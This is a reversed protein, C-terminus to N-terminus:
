TDALEQLGDRVGELLEVGDAPVGLRARQRRELERLSRQFSRELGAEYRSLRGMWEYGRVPASRTDPRAFEEPPVWVLRVERGGPEPDPAQEGRMRARLAPLAEAVDSLGEISSIRMLRWAASVVRAALYEEVVGVPRLEMGWARAFRRFLARSEGPLVDAAATLGHKVALANGKGVRGAANRREAM